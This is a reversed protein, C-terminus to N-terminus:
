IKRIKVSSLISRVNTVVALSGIIELLYYWVGIDSAKQALPRRFIVFSYLTVVTSLDKM